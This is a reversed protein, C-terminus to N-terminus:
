RRTNTTLNMENEKYNFGSGDTKLQIWKRRNTTPDMEKEMCKTMRSRKVSLVFLFSGDFFPFVLFVKMYQVAM